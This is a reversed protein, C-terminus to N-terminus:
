LGLGETPHEDREDSVAETLAKLWARDNVTLIEPFRTAFVVFLGSFGDWAQPEGYKGKVPNRKDRQVWTNLERDNKRVNCKACATVFNEASHVGDRKHAIVHDVTAGLEDLLPAGDRSWNNHFLAMPQAWGSRRLDHELLKMAQPLIVPRKCWHCLWQDRKYVAAAISPPIPKRKRETEM